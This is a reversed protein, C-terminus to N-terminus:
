PLPAADSTQAVPEHTTQLSPEPEVRSPELARAPMELTGDSARVLAPAEERPEGPMAVTTESRARTLQAPAPDIAPPAAILDEDRRADDIPTAAGSLTSALPVGLRAEILALRRDISDLREVIISMPDAVARPPGARPSATGVREPMPPLPRPTLERESVPAGHATDAATERESAPTGYAPRPPPSTADDADRLPTSPKSSAAARGILVGLGAGIIAGVAAGIFGGGLAGLVAGGLVGMWVWFGM